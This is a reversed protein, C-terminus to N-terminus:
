RVEQVPKGFNKASAKEKRVNPIEVSVKVPQPEREFVIKPLKNAPAEVGKNTFSKSASKGASVGPAGAAAAFNLTITYDDNKNGYYWAGSNYNAMAKFVSGAPFTIVNDKMTGFIIGVTGANAKVTEISYGESVYLGPDCSLLFDGYGWNCGTDFTEFWVWDPDDANIVLYYDKSDDWDGPDNYPFAEGYINVLRYRGQVDQSAQLEVEYSVPDASFWPGFFADTWTATGVTSWVEPSPTTEFFDYVTADMVGNTAWVVIGYATGPDLGSVVDYYGGVQNIAKVVDSSVGYTKANSKVAALAAENLKNAPFVGVHADTIESGLIGFAFSDYETFGAYRAPTPETFVQIDVKYKNVDEACVHDVVVSASSQATGDKSYAVAVVTYTGSVEPAIGFAGYNKAEEADFEFESYTEFDETGAIIGETKSALQASNLEGEYVAYKLSTVDAGAEVYVPTVGDESFDTELLLSYDVRVFGDSIAVFEYPDPSFGGLGPIYYRLNFFFGGNGDYYGVPYSGDIQGTKNAEALWDDQMSGDGWAYGREIWYWPYDYVYIPSTAESVPKSKWDAYDFGFYQKKVELFNYGANNNNETYWTFELTAGVEDGWIGNGEETSEIVCTRVGGVEYYRLQAEHVEGWWGENLTIVATEGTKPNKFTEWTVILVSFDLAIAGSNYHSIYANDDDLQVSFSLSKGEPANPFTVDLDTESQGDAFAITGFNFVGEDSVTTTFPVTIAGNTNTRSVTISVTKEMSPDYTHSGMAEQSPFFVGYCDSPDAKGPEYPTEKQACSLVTFAALASALIINIYKKM